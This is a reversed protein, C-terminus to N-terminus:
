RLARSKAAEVRPIMRASNKRPTCGVSDRIPSACTLKVEHLHVGEKEKGLRMGGVRMGGWREKRGVRM